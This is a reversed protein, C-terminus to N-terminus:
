TQRPVRTETPNRDASENVMTEFRGIDVRIAALATRWFDPSRLDIGFRAALEAPEAMGTSALLDDFAPRFTTPDDQYRAHLGLAFLLGFLYPLNYFSVGDLYLHPQAAWSWPYPAAPDLAGGLTERQAELMLANIEDAGLERTRRLAFFRDEFLFNALAEVVSRRASTLSADLLALQEGANDREEARRLAGRRVLEECFKSAVELLTPPTATTQLSTRREQALVVGHYAHGLEHALTRVSDYRPHFELRIRSTGDGVWLCLGGGRKGPRPEADIWRERFAREALGGLAPAYARFQEGIIAAATDFTWGGGEGVPAALDYWALTPLGLLRAKAELYRRFDPLAEQTAGLVADLTTRDIGQEFLAADLPTTWSRRAALTSAEGKVGNLAAALSTANAKWAAVEAEYARRRTERDPDAGMARVASMPLAQEDGDRRIRVTMSATLDAHLQTWAAGGSVHLAAALAEEPVSMTHAAQHRARRLLFAHDRAVASRAILVEVDLSGVWALLRRRLEAVRAVAPRLESATARALVDQADTDVFASVFDQLQWSAQEAANLQATISEFTGVTEDDPPGSQTTGIKHTDFLAALAAVDASVSDLAQRFEPSALGPYITTLDWRPLSTTSNVM